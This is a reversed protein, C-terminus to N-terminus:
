VPAYAFMAPSSFRYPSRAPSSGVANGRRDYGDLRLVMVNPILNVNRLGGGGGFESGGGCETRGRQSVEGVVEPLRLVESADLLL